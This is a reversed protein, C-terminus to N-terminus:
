KFLLPLLMVAVVPLMVASSMKYKSLGVLIVTVASLM